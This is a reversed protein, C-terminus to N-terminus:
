HNQPLGELLASHINYFGMAALTALWWTITCPLPVCIPM